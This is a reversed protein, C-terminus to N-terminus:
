KSLLRSTEPPVGVPGPWQNSFQMAEQTIQHAASHEALAVGHISVLSLLNTVIAMSISETPLGTRIKCHAAPQLPTCCLHRNCM